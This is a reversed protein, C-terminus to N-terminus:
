GPTGQAVVVVKFAWRRMWGLWRDAATVITGARSAGVLPKLFPVLFTLVGHYSVDVTRFGRRLM